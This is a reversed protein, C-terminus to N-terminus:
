IVIEVVGNAFRLNIAEDATAVLREAEEATPAIPEELLM